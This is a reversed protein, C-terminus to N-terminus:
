EDYPGLSQAVWMQANMAEALSHLVDAALDKQNYLAMELRGKRCEVLADVLLVIVHQLAQHGQILSAAMPSDRAVQVEGRIADSPPFAGTIEDLLELVATTTERMVNAHERICWVPDDSALVVQTLSLQAEHEPDGYELFWSGPAIRSENLYRWEIRAM